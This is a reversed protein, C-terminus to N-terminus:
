IVTFSADESCTSASSRVISTHRHGLSAQPLDPPALTEVWEEEEEEEEEELWGTLQPFNLLSDTEVALLPGTM